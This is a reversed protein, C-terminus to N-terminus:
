KEQCEKLLTSLLSVQGECFAVEKDHAKKIDAMQDKFWESKILYEAVEKTPELTWPAKPDLPNPYAGIIAWDWAETEVKRSNKLMLIMKQGAIIRQQEIQFAQSPEKGAREEYDDQVFGFGMGAQGFALPGQKTSYWQWVLFAGIILLIAIIANIATSDEKKVM